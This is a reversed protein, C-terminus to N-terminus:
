FYLTDPLVAQCNYHRRLGGQLPTPLHFHGVCWNSESKSANLMSKQANILRRIEVGSPPSSVLIGWVYSSANLM